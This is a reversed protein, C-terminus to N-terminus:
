IETAKLRQTDLTIMKKTLYYFRGKRDTEGVWLNCDSVERLGSYRDVVVLQRSGIGAYVCVALWGVPPALTTHWQPSFRALLILTNTQKHISSYRASYIFSVYTHLSSAACLCIFTAFRTNFFLGFNRFIHSSFFIFTM